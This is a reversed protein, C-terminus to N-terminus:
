LALRASGTAEGELSCITITVASLPATPLKKQIELWFWEALNESTPTVKLCDNLHHNQLPSFIEQVTTQLFVLDILKDNQIPYAASFEATVKWLHFHPQEFGELAHSAKFDHCVTLTLKGPKSSM